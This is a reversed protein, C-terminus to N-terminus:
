SGSVQISAEGSIQGAERRVDGEVCSEADDQMPDSFVKLSSGCVMTRFVAKGREASQSASGKVEDDSVVGHRWKEYLEETKGGAFCQQAEKLLVVDASAVRERAEWAKRLRFYEL